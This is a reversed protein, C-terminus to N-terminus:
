ARIARAVCVLLPLLEAYVLPSVAAVTIDLALGSTSVSIEGKLCQRPQHPDGRAGALLLSTLNLSLSLRLLIQSTLSPTYSNSATSSRHRLPSTPPETRPYLPVALIAKHGDFYGQRRRLTL